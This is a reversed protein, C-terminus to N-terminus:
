PTKPNSSCLSSCFLMFCGFAVRLRLGVHSGVGCRFIHLIAALVGVLTVFCSSVFFNRGCIFLQSSDVVLAHSLGTGRSLFGRGQYALAGSFYPLLCVYYAWPFSFSTRLM